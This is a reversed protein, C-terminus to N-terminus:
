HPGHKRLHDHVRGEPAPLVGQAQVEVGCELCLPNAEGSAILRSTESGMWCVRDCRVCTAFGHTCYDPEEGKRVRELIVLRTAEATPKTRYSVEARPDLSVGAKALVAKVSAVDVAHDTM